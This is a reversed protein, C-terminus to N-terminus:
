RSDVPVGAGAESQAHHVAGPAQDKKNENSDKRAFKIKFIQKWSIVRLINEQQAKDVMIQVGGIELGGNGRVSCQLTCYPHRLNFPKWEQKEAEVVPPKIKGM